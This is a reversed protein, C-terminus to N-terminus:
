NMRNYDHLLSYFTLERGNQFENDSGHIAYYIPYLSVNIAIYLKYNDTMGDDVQYNSFTAIPTLKLKLTNLWLVFIL